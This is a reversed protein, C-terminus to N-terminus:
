FGNNVPVVSAGASRKSATNECSAHATRYLELSYEYMRADHTNAHVEHQDLACVHHKQICGTMTRLGENSHPTLRQQCQLRLTKNSVHM